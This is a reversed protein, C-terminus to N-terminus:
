RVADGQAVYVIRNPFAEHSQASDLWQSNNTANQHDAVQHVARSGTPNRQLM